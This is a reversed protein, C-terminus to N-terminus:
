LTEARLEVGRCKFDEYSVLGSILPSKGRILVIHELNSLVPVGSDTTSRIHKMHPHLSGIRDGTQSRLAILSKAISVSRQYLQEYTLRTKTWSAIVAERDAYKIVQKELLSGITIDLLAPESPGHILSM